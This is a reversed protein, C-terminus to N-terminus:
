EVGKIKKDPADMHPLGDGDPRTLFIKDQLGLAEYCLQLWHAGGLDRRLYPATPETQSYDPFKGQLKNAVMYALYYCAALKRVDNSQEGSSDYRYVAMVGAEATVTTPATEM